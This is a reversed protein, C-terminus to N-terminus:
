DTENIKERSSVHQPWSWVDANATQWWAPGPGLPVGPVDEDQARSGSRRRDSCVAGDSFSQRLLYQDMSTYQVYLSASLILTKELFTNKEKKLVNTSFNFVFSM